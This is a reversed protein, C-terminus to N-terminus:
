KVLIDSCGDTEFVGEDEDLAPVNTPGLLFKLKVLKRQIRITKTARANSIPLFDKIDDVSFLLEISLLQNTEICVLETDVM